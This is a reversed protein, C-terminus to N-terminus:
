EEPENVEQEGFEEASEEVNEKGPGEGENIEVHSEVNNAIGFAFPTTSSLKRATYRGTGKVTIEWESTYWSARSLRKQGYEIKIKLAAEAVPDSSAKSYRVKVQSVRANATYGGHSTPSCYTTPIVRIKKLFRGKKWLDPHATWQKVRGGFQFRLALDLKVRAGSSGDLRVKILPNTKKASLTYNWYGIRDWIINRPKASVYKGDLNEEVARGDKVIYWSKYGYRRVDAIDVNPPGSIALDSHAERANAVIQLGTDHKLRLGEVVMPLGLGLMVFVTRMLGVM